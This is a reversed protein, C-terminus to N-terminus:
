CPATSLYISTQATGCDQDDAYWVGNVQLVSWRLSMGTNFGLDETVVAPSIGIATKLTFTVNGFNQCRCTLDAPVGPSAAALRTALRTTLPCTTAV